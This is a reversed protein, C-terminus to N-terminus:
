SARRPAAAAKAQIHAGRQRAALGRDPVFPRRKRLREGTSMVARHTDPAFREIARVRERKDGFPNGARASCHGLLRDDDDALNKGVAFGAKRDEAIFGIKGSAVMARTFLQLVM